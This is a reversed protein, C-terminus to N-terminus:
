CFHTFNDRRSKYVERCSSGAIHAAWLICLNRFIYNIGKEQEEKEQLMGKVEIQEKIHIKKPYNVDAGLVALEQCM